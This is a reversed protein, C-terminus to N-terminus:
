IYEDGIYKFPVGLERIANDNDEEREYRAVRTEMHDPIETEMIPCWPEIIRLYFVSGPAMHLPVRIFKKRDEGTYPVLDRIDEAVSNRIEDLVRFLDGCLRDVQYEIKQVQQRLDMLELEELGEISITLILQSIYTLKESAENTRM